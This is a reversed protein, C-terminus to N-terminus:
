RSAPDCLDWAGFAHGFEGQRELYSPGVPDFTGLMAIWNLLEGGINGARMLQAENAEDVLDSPKAADMLSVIRDTWESDPASAQASGVGEHIGGLDLSFSGSAVVAVRKGDASTEIAERLAKGLAFCRSSNPTPDVLGSLFVPVIPIKLDRALFHYPVMFTHDLSFEQTMAVDFGAKVTDHHLQGALLSDISVRYAPLDPQDSPGQSSEAVGICFIPLDTFFTNFHDTSIVVLVDPGLQALRSAVEGYLRNVESGLPTSELAQLPFRPTHPVGFAGVIRGM